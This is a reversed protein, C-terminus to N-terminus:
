EVSSLFKLAKQLQDDTKDSPNEAYKKSLKVEIGPIIGVGDISNGNPTLWLASTYKIMTKNSLNSTQQVRGKGYTKTGIITAGYSEKLASALVESASATISDVLVVIDYDRSEFTEDYFVKNNNKESLTYLTKGKKIFMSAIDNASELYGGTNSRVDVILSDIGKNELEILKRRFQSYSNESFTSLYIYGIKKNDLEYIDSSTVPQEINKVDIKFEKIENDRLVSISINDKEKILSVVDNLSTDKTVELDDVKKIIDNKILGANSAPTGEFVEVIKIDDKIKSVSIGIGKYNGDLKKNLSDTSDKDMYISYKENLFNMMGNIASNKLEEEDVTEYYSNKIENYTNTIDKVNSSAIINKDSLLYVTIGSLVSFFITFIVTILIVEKLTYTNDKSNLLKKM